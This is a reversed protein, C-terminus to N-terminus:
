ADQKVEHLKKIDDNHDRLISELYIGLDRAWEEINGRFEPIPPIEGSIKESM